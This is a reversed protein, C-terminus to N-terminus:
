IRAYRHHLGGLVPYAVIDGFREVPRRCPADKGLSVHTRVENYYTAYKALIRRLHEANFVLLHDTCERRISGILREVYGNQWPSRFATPRDRIGMARVHAKFVAGFVRDNDRILYKPAGDWPFAETIQRALWHKKGHEERWEYFGEAPIVCRKNALMIKFSGRRLSDTRANLLGFRAMRTALPKGREALFAPVQETPAVNPNYKFNILPRTLSRPIESWEKLGRIRNCM